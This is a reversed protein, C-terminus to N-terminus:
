LLMSLPSFISGQIVMSIYINNGFGIDNYIIGVDGHLFDYIHYLIPIFQYDADVKVISNNDFPYLNNFDFIIFLILLTIISPLIFRIKKM